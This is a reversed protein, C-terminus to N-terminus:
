GLTSYKSWATPRLNDGAAGTAEFNRSSCPRYNKWGHDKSPTSDECLAFLVDAIESFKGTKLWRFAEKLILTVWFILVEYVAFSQRGGPTSTIQTEPRTALSVKSRKPLVSISPDRYVSSRIASPPHPHYFESSLIRIIFRPHCFASSLVRIVFHPHFFAFSFIRSHCFATVM